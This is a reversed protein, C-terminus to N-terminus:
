AGSGKGGGRSDGLAERIARRELRAVATPSVDVVRAVESCMMPRVGGGRAAEARGETWEPWGMRMGMVLRAGESVRGSAGRVGADPELWEQWPSVHRTWDAFVLGEALRAQARGSAELPAPAGRLWRSAERTVLLTIPAALRGGRSPDFADVARGAARLGLVVLEEARAARQEELRVGAREELTQVVLALHSRLLEAKLRAAWRLATEIADIGEASPFARDLGLTWVRARTLLGRFARARAREVVGLPVERRRAAQIFRLLDTVGPGGLDASASGDELDPGAFSVGGREGDEEVGVGEGVGELLVGRLREARVLNVGRRVAAASRSMASASRRLEVGLGARALADSAEERRLPGRLGFIAGGGAHRRDHKILMQRVAERSRGYRRAIRDSAENLTLGARRYLRACRLVRARVREDMRSFGAARAILAPHAAAFADAARASFGLRWKGREDLVRRAILGRRRLREVTKSSVGWRASLAALTVIDGGGDGAASLRASMSLREALASLDRLVAEGGIAEAGEIDARFGTVRFVVWEESYVGGGDIELALAEIREVDRVLAERPAFRLQEALRSLAGTTIRTLPPM